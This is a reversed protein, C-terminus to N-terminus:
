HLYQFRSLTKIMLSSLLLFLARSVLHLYPSHGSYRVRHPRGLLPLGTSCSRVVFSLRAVSELSLALSGRESLALSDANAIPASLFPFPRVLHIFNHQSCYIMLSSLLLFLSRSVLHLHPKHGSCRIRHPRGLFFPFGTSCRRMVLSLRAVSELSLALSGREGPIPIPGAFGGSYPADVSWRACCICSDSETYRVGINLAPTLGRARM